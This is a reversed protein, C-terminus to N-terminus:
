PRPASARGSGTPVRWGSTPRGPGRRASRWLVVLWVVGIVAVLALGLGELAPMLVAQVPTPQGLSGDLTLLGRAGTFFLTLYFAITHMADWLAHLIAVGLYAFLLRLGVVFHDRGSPAFLVGGLIATWLGHGVPAVLGRLIETQVVQVVSLGQVTFLAIFAYGASELASFGFGVAAGLIMGDRISKAALHRTLLALAALKAAEEILGVGLFLLVSPRLLYSELVASALIGLVGGALFTGFVASVTVEGTDRRQFAWAVFTVPVLFSGLLVLTPLLTPNGTLFIVVVTALWLALGVLFIRLWQRRPTVPLAATWQRGVGDM